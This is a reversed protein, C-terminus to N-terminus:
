FRLGVQGGLSMQVRGNDFQEDYFPQYGIGPKYNGEANKAQSLSVNYSPGVFVTVWKAIRFDVTTSFKFLEAVNFDAFLDTFVSQASLDLSMSWKESFKLNSGFGAGLAYMLSDGFNMGFHYTNYFHRVGSKLTLNVPFIENASVETKHFGKVSFNVLGIAIGKGEYSTNIVGIQLGGNSHAFNVMGSVQLGKNNEAINVIGAAQFFNTGGHAFNSIGSVQGGNLNGYATSHIGSIQLGYSASDTLSAIGSVQLGNFGCRTATFIGGVQLGNLRGKSIASIGGIQAGLFDHGGLAFIGGVQTGIFNGGVSSSIGGAQLGAGSGRVSSVIGGAQMGLLDGGVINGIGGAQFWRVDGKVFNLLGAVEAGAVGNSYGALVNLSFRNTILGNTSLNSGIGVSPVLSIQAWRTEKIEGLNQTHVYTDYSVMEGSLVRNEIPTYVTEVPRQAIKEIEVENPELGVNKEIIERSSVDIVFVFENYGKKRIYLSRITESNPIELFYKGSEDSVAAYRADVDYISVGSIPKGTRKDTITGKFQTTLSSKKRDRLEQLDENKLLVIHNGVEKFRVSKNFILSLGYRITKQKISLSVIKDEEILEPNYSFQVSARKEIVLLITKIPTNKIEVTIVRDLIGTESWSDSVFLLGIFVLLLRFRMARFSLNIKDM